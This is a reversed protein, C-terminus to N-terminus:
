ARHDWADRIGELGNWSESWRFGRHPPLRYRKARRVAQIAGCKVPTVPRNLVAQMPGRVYDEAVVFTTHSVPWAGALKVVMLRIIPLKIRCVEPLSQQARPQLDGSPIVINQCVEDGRSIKV